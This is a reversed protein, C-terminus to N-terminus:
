NRIAHRLWERDENTVRPYVKAENAPFVVRTADCGEPCAFLKGQMYRIGFGRLIQYESTTEIGEAILMVGLKRCVEAFAAVITRKADNSGIGDILERDLKVIDPKCMALTNLGSYGSGFDDIAIAIGAARHLDVIRALRAANMRVGESLELVISSTKIGYHKALHMVCAPDSGLSDMLPGLNISIKAGKEELECTVALCMSKAMALKDFEAVRGPEMGAILSSYNEGDRGRCLAEYGYVTQREVEVIAQLV